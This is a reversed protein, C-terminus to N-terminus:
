NAKKLSLGSQLVLMIEEMLASMVWHGKGPCWRKITGGSETHSCQTGPETHTFRKPSVMAVVALRMIM